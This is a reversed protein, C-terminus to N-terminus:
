ANIINPSQIVDVGTLALACAAKVMNEKSHPSKATKNFEVVTFSTEKKCIGIGPNITPIKESIIGLDVGETLTVPAHINIIGCEKLNHSAIKSLESHTKLPTYNCHNQTHKVNFDYFSACFKAGELLKNKTFEIFDKDFAKITLKCKSEEITTGDCGFKNEIAGTIIAEGTYNSKYLEILNLLLISPNQLNASSQVDIKPNNKKSRFTFDVYSCGLSTGSEYTKTSAHGCIVADVGEFQGNDLMAAKSNKPCGFVVVTGEIEKIARKLGLAAGANMASTFNHSCVNAAAPKSDYDCIYAITKGSSGFSAKFSNKIGAIDRNVTFGEATFIDCLLECTKAENLADYNDYMFDVIYELRDKMNEIYGTTYSRIANGLAIM